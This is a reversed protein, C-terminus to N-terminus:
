TSAEGLGVPPPALRAIRSFLAQYLPDLGSVGAGALLRGLPDHNRAFAADMEQWDAASFCREAAPLVQEEELRMHEEYFRLYTALSAEFTERRTEGLLEPVGVAYETAVRKVIGRMAQAVVPGAVVAELASVRRHLRDVEALLGSM